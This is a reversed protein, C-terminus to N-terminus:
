WSTSIEGSLVVIPNSNYLREESVHEPERIANDVTYHIDRQLERSSVVRELDIDRITTFPIIKAPEAM